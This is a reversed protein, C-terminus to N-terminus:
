RKNDAIFNPPHVANLIYSVQLGEIHTESAAKIDLASRYNSRDTREDLMDCDGLYIRIESIWDYAEIHFTPGPTGETSGFIRQDPGFTVAIGVLAGADNWYTDFDCPRHVVDFWSNIFQASITQAARKPPFLVIPLHLSEAERLIDEAEEGAPQAYSSPTVRERYLPLIKQCTHHIRRRNAIGM